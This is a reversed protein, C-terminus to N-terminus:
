PLLSVSVYSYYGMVMGILSGTCVDFVDHRYDETRSVTVLVAGVAPLGVVVVKVM